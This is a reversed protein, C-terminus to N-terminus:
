GAWLLPEEHWDPFLKLPHLQIHQRHVALSNRFSMGAIRLFGAPRSLDFM